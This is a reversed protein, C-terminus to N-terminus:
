KKQPMVVVKKGEIQFKVSGTMELMEFVKSANVNRPITGGIHGTVEGKYEIDVDYWRSLQRMITAIDASESFQFKGNKWAMVEQVDVNRNLSIHGNLDMQAQQGRSLMQVNNDKTIKVAGELLTTKISLEDTYSNINFHTGLVEVNMDNVSVKFPMVANKTVEFYVEGSIEVNREKGTFTAPFRISSAANLWVKSGDALTLQYHGGRPTTITNYLVETPKENSATYALQGDNLKSIKTNGQKTIIGNQAHDLIIQSNDALTLIAKNGGPAIDNKSPDTNETEAIENGSNNKLFVFSGVALLILVAAAAIRLWTRKYIRIVPTKAETKKWIGALLEKELRERESESFRTSIGEEKEFHDYYKELFILEEASAKGQLWKDIISILEQKNTPDTM